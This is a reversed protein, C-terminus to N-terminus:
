RVISTKGEATAAIPQKDSVDIGTRNALESRVLRDKRALVWRPSGISPEGKPTQRRITDLV